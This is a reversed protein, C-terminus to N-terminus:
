YPFEGWKVEIVNPDKKKEELTAKYTALGATLADLFVQEEDTSASLVLDGNEEKRYDM